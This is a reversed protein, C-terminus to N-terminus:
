LEADHSKKPAGSKEAGTKAAAEKAAALKDMVSPKDQRFAMDLTLQEGATGPGIEPMTRPSRPIEPGAQREPLPEPQPHENHTLHQEKKLEAVIEDFVANIAAREAGEPYAKLITTNGDKDTEFTVACQAHGALYDSRGPLTDMVYTAFARATMETNSDWYGGDKESIEGMRKSNKYFETQVKGITPATQGAMGRLIGEFIHLRDREEKPIIRGAVSKKLESLKDVSGPEGRLFATKLTEYDALAKEDGSRNLTPLMANKLWGEANKVTRADQAGARAAAQEPTELKYKITDILKAMLPHKHPKESLMGGAGMKGGLYDDLGHWWEHALSGAGNMKTLNIVQRLPEYHAVARGSGRAGFAISLAGQYSIDRDSIKLAAALDKLADYGMNLSTQRDNQNMWNGFEGGKFGFTDLYDQGTADRGRRYDPGNRKVHKLQEPVFRKKGSVGRQKAFDQVWKLADAETALNQKIIRHGKAVFYTDPQWDNDKSWTNKGDNFRIEYGPPIKEEKSVGFQQKEAKRVYDRQYAYESSVHLANVLKNTIATNNRGKETWTYRAGSISGEGTREMYGNDLVFRRYAAMVDAKTHVDSMVSQVERVTDIYQEQRALRKEPSEDGRVYAPSAALSDRATKIFFAVDAPMGGDIMAGYDPKKWINDKKVYKDAERENMGALDGSLLGREQWLDKKAGGIKEGFDEHQVQKAM